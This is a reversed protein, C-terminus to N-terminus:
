AQAATAAARPRSLLGRLSVLDAKSVVQLAFAAAFYAGAGLPVTVVVSADRIPWLAAGMVLGAAVCKLVYRLTDRNFVGRPVLMLGACLLLVETLSTVVAAGIAGNGFESQTYPIAAFNLSVNFVAAVVGAIAWHRQKDRAALVSGVMMNIGVLPLTTALITLAPVADKFEEPYGFFRILATAVLVLGFAMPITTLATVELARRAITNFSHEERSSASLAPFVATMIVAPLFLPLSIIRYAAAYWG